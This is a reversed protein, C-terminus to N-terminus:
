SRRGVMLLPSQIATCASVVHQEASGVLRALLQRYAHAQASFSFQQQMRRRAALGMQHRVAPAHLLKQIRDALAVSDGAPVLYGTHGDVVVEPTGGVASAVVPVGAACAELAFNPMGETFSPLVAVDAGPLLQDLDTRFGALVVHKALGYQQIQRQLTDRLRGEGFIAWGIDTKGQCHLHAAAEILVCFGKEPSLRGAAVVLHQPTTPFLKELRQRALAPDKDAFAECRASNYIVSIREAPVTCWRRVRGAQSQSVCVVHDM